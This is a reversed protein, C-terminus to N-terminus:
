RGAASAAAPSPYIPGMFICVFFLVPPAAHWGAAQSAASVMNIVVVAVPTPQAIGTVEIDLVQASVAVPMMLLLYIFLRRM